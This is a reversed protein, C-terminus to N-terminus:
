SLSPDRGKRLLYKACIIKPRGNRDAVVAKHGLKAKLELEELVAQRLIELAIQANEQTSSSVM